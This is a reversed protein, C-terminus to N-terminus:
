ELGGEPIELKSELDRTSPEDLKGVWSAVVRGQRDAIVLTPTGTLSAWGPPIGGVQPIDLGNTGLYGALIDGPERSVAVIQLEAKRSAVIDALQRYMAMSQTCFQCQSHVYLLITNAKSAFAVEPLDPLRQGLSLAAATPAPTERHNYSYLVVGVASIIAIDAILAVFSKVQIITM